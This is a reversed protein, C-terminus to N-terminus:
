CEEKQEQIIATKYEALKNKFRDSLVDYMLDDIEENGGLAYVYMGVLELWLQKTDREM